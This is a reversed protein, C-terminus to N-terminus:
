QSVDIAISVEIKYLWLNVYDKYNFIGLQFSLDAQPIYQLQVLIMIGFCNAITIAQIKEQKWLPTILTGLVV